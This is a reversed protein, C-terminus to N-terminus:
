KHSHGLHGRHVDSICKTTDTGILVIRWTHQWFSFKVTEASCRTQLFLCQSKNLIKVREEILSATGPNQYSSGVFVEINVHAKTANLPVTDQRHDKNLTSTM